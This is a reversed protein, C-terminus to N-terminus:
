LEDVVHRATGDEEEGGVVLVPVHHHVGEDAGEVPVDDVGAARRHAELEAEGPDGVAGVVRGLAPLERVEVHAGRWLALRGRATGRAGPRSARRGKYGSWGIRRM